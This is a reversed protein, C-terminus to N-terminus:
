DSKGGGGKVFLGTLIKGDYGRMGKYRSFVQEAVFGHEVFLERLRRVDFVSKHGDDWYNRMFPISVLVVGGERLVFNLNAMFEPLDEPYIHELTHFTVVSDFSEPPLMTPITFDDVWFECKDDGLFTAYRGAAEIAECNVDVGVVSTVAPDKAILLSMMGINCGVDLVRGVIRDPFLRYVQANIHRSWRSITEGMNDEDGVVGIEKEYYRRRVINGRPDKVLSKVEWRRGCRKGGRKRKGACYGRQGHEL